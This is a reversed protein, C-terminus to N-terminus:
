HLIKWFECGIFLYHTSNYDNSVILSTALIQKDNLIVSVWLTIHFLTLSLILNYM